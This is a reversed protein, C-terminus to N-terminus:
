FLIDKANPQYNGAGVLIFEVDGTVNTKPDDM